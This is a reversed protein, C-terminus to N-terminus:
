DDFVLHVRRNQKGKNEIKSIRIKGIESINNVHTGGCPQYDVGQIRVMRIDGVGRPPQVSMTRVLDPNEDLEQETISDFHVDSATDILKNIKITLEEKDLKHEGLNFDLRSKVAGVSGGTVPVPILSGLLHMATHMKMHCYRRDWDIGIKVTQGLILDHNEDELLHLVDGHTEGKRSDVINLRRGDEVEIWGTDGPQGGGLPYFITSDFQISHGDISTVSVEIEEMYSDSIFVANTM